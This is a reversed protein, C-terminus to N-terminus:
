NVLLSLTIEKTERYIILKSSQFNIYYVHFISPIWLFDLNTLRFFHSRKSSMLSVPIYYTNFEMKPYSPTSQILRAWFSPWPPSNYVSRYSEPEMFTPYIKVPQTGILCKHPTKNQVKMIDVLYVCFVYMNLHPQFRWYKKNM